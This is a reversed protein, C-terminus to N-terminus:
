VALAGLIDVVRAAAAIAPSVPSNARRMAQDRWAKVEARLAALEQACLRCRLAPHEEDVVGILFVGKGSLTLRMSKEIRMAVNRLVNQQQVWALVRHGHEPRCAYGVAVREGVVTDRRYGYVICRHTLRENKTRADRGKM